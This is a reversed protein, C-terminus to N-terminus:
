PQFCTVTVGELILHVAEDTKVVSDGNRQTFEVAQASGEDFTVKQKRPEYVLAELGKMKEAVVRLDSFVVSLKM